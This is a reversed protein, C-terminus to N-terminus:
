GKPGQGNWRNLTKTLTRKYKMPAKRILPNEPQCISFRSAEM